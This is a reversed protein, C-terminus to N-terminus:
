EIKPGTEDQGSAHHIVVQTVRGASDKTFTMQANVAKLFFETETEAFIELKEPGGGPSGRHSFLRDGRRSITLVVDPQMQYAGVYADLATGNLKIAKHEKILPVRRELLHLGIDTIDNGTNSLVVVGRRKNVDMGLYSIYGGTGGSHNRIDADFPRNIGWGLAMRMKATENPQHSRQMAALVPSPHLGLNAAAFKLMDNVTSLLGGAAAYGRSLDWSSAPKLSESHGHAVRTQMDPTPRLATDTMGLPGTIRTRVLTAYDTGARRALLQGLLSVAFNSYESEAGIDRELTYHSLYAYMDDVSYRSMVGGPDTCWLCLRYWLPVINGADRPLGSTHTSLHALTIDKGNRTPARVGAPLYKSIPDALRVEGREVMDALLIATFVKTISGIEFVSDGNVPQHSKRDATGYSVVRTGTQDILGVVIGVGKHMHDVRDELIRTVDDNSITFAASDTIPLPSPAQPEGAAALATCLCALFVLSLSTSLLSLVLIQILGRLPLRFVSM